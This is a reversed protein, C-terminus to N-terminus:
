EPLNVAISTNCLEILGNIILVLYNNVSARNTLMEMQAKRVISTFASQVKEKMDDSMPSEYIGKVIDNFDSDAVKYREMGDSSKRWAVLISRLLKVISKITDSSLTKIETGMKPYEVPSSNEFGVTDHDIFGQVYGVVQEANAPNSNVKERRQDLFYAGGMLEVSQKAVVTNNTFEKNPYSCEKFRTSVIAKPLLLFRAKAEDDTLGDFGGFYSLTNNLFTRNALYYNTSLATVTANLKTVGGVWDENVKGNVKFLNFLRTGLLITDTGAKFSPAANIDKELMDVLATLSDVSQTFILYSDRFGISIQLSIEKAKRYFEGLFSECGQLRTAVFEKPMLTRGLSEFGHVEGLEGAPIDVDSRNLYNDMQKALGLDLKNVDIDVLVKKVIDVRDKDETLREQLNQLKGMDNTLEVLETSKVTSITAMEANLQLDADNNDPM